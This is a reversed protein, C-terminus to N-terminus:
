RIVYFLYIWYLLIWVNCQIWHKYEISIQQSGAFRKTERQIDKVGFSDFYTADYSANGNNGNMYLAIWHTGISKYKDLHIM